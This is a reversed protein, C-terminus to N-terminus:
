HKMKMGIYRKLVFQDLAVLILLSFLTLSIMKTNEAGTSTVVQKTADNAKQTFSEIVKAYTDTVAQPILSPRATQEQMRFLAPNSVAYGLVALVMAMAFVNGLNDIVRTKWTKRPQPVIRAMLRQVFGSSTAVDPQQRSVKLVLKQLEVEKRCRACVALHSTCQAQAAYDLTGDTFQLIQKTTLHNM